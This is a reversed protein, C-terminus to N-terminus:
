FASCHVILKDSATWASAATITISTTSFASERNSINTNMDQILCGWGAAATPLTIVGSTASGGTGVNIEFVATGNSNVISPTTGFGSAITPATNSSLLTKSVMQPSKRSSIANQSDVYEYQSTAAVTGLSLIGASNAVSSVKFINYSGADNIATTATAVDCVVDVQNLSSTADDQYCIDGTAVTGSELRAYIKEDGANQQSFFVAGNNSGGVFQAIVHYDNGETNQTSVAKQCNEIFVNIKNLNVNTTSTQGLLFMGSQGSVNQGQCKIGVNDITNFSTIGAGGNGIQIGTGSTASSDLEIALNEVCAKQTGSLLTIGTANTATFELITAWPGAGSLCVNSPITLSSTIVISAGSFQGTPPVMVLGGNISAAAVASAIGTETPPYCAGSTTGVWPVGDFLCPNAATFQGSLISNGAFTGGFSGGHTANITSGFSVAGSFPTNGGDIRAYTTDGTPATVVALTSIPSVNAIDLTGGSRAHVPTEPGAIGGNFIQMGYYVATYSGGAEIDGAGTGAADRTSYITGSINGSADAPLDVYFASGSFQPAIAGTGTIRPQNGRTGRLWFRVYATTGPTTTDLKTIHGVVQTTGFASASLALLVILRIFPTNVFTLKLRM